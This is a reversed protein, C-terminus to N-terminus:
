LFVSIWTLVDNNAIGEEDASSDVVETHVRKRIGNSLSNYKYKTESM